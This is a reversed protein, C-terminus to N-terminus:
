LTCNWQLLCYHVEIITLKFTFDMLCSVKDKYRSVVSKSRFYKCIIQKVDEYSKSSYKWLAM